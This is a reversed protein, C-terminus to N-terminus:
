TQDLLDSKLRKTYLIYNKMGTFLIENFKEYANKNKKRFIIKLNCTFIKRICHLRVLPPRTSLINVYLNIGNDTSVTSTASLFDSPLLRITNIETQGSCM